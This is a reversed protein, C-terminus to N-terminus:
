SYRRYPSDLGAKNKQEASLLSDQDQLPYKPSRCPPQTKNTYDGGPPSPDDVFVPYTRDICVCQDYFLDVISSCDQSGAIFLTAHLMLDECSMPPLGHEPAEVIQEEAGLNSCLTSCSNRRVPCGCLGGLNQVAQCACDNFQLSEQAKDHIEFCTGTLGMRDIFSRDEFYYQLFSSVNKDPLDADRGDQCLTCPIIDEDDLCNCQDYFLDAMNSCDQSDSTFQTAHLALDYCSMKPIGYEPANVIREPNGYISCEINCANEREPCGCLGSVSQVAQCESSNVTLLRQSDQDIESCTGTFGVWDISPWDEAYYQLFSSVNKDPFDLERGDPCLTCPEYCECQEHFLSKMDTCAGSDSTFQTAHFMLDECSMVPIDYEPTDVIQEPNRLISCEMNCSNRRVPCGCLGSVSQVAQCDSSNFTLLERANSQIESCTTGTWNMSSRRENLYYQLFSSVNKDLFDLEGGDPCLTCPEYCECRDHLLSKMDTCDRSDSTFQTAHLMLDECSMVPIDYEPADIIQEPNRLISCEMNCSNRRVPCGCLGSVSQVAQCESSNFTLLEQANSYIQSCTGAIRTWNMSTRVDVEYADLYYQLFSSVNKDPLNPERSSGPCLNCPLPDEGLNDTRNCLAVPAFLVCFLCPILLRLSFVMM